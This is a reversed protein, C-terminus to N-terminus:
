IFNCDQFSRSLNTKLHHTYTPMAFDKAFYLTPLLIWFTHSRLRHCSALWCVPVSSSIDVRVSSWSPLLSKVGLRHQGPKLPILFAASAQGCVKCFCNFYNCFLVKQGLRASLNGVKVHGRLYIGSFICVLDSSFCKSEM